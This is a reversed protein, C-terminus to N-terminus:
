QYSARIVREGPMNLIDFTGDSNRVFVENRSSTHAYGATQRSDNISLTVINSAGPDDILETQYSQAQASAAVFVVAMAGLLYHFNM